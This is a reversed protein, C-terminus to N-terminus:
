VKSYPKASGFHFYGGLGPQHRMVRFVRLTTIKIQSHPPSGKKAQPVGRGGYVKVTLNCGVCTSMKCVTNTVSINM